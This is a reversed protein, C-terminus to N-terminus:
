VLEIRYLNMNIFSIKFIVEKQCAGMKFKYHALNKRLM